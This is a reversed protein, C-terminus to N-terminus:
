LDTRRVSLTREVFTELTNPQRGLIWRLVNPNGALGWQDYYEFMKILNEVAFQSMDKARLRWNRSEEREARIPRKLVTSLKEAVEVHSMPLTGALEYFANKHNPESLVIKAVDSIDELDVFSFRSNVSYPVRLIGDEVSKWGALLNQMYPVPQLITFPVGSECVMEEVRMKQWHHTM